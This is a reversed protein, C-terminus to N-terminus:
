PRTSRPTPRATAKKPKVLPAGAAQNAKLRFPPVRMRKASRRSHAHVINEDGLAEALAEAIETRDNVNGKTDPTPRDVGKDARVPGALGGTEVHQRFED